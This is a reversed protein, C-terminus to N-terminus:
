SLFEDPPATINPASGPNSDAASLQCAIPGVMVLLPLVIELLPRNLLFGSSNARLRIPVM